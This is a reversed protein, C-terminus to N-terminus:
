KAVVKLGHADLSSLIKAAVSPMLPQGLADCIAIEAMDRVDAETLPGPDEAYGQGCQTAPRFLKYIPVNTLTM